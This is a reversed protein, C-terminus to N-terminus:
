RPTFAAVSNTTILFVLACALLLTLYVKYKRQMAMAKTDVVVGRGLLQREQAIQRRVVDTDAFVRDILRKDSLNAAVRSYVEPFQAQLYRMLDRRLTLSKYYLWIWLFCILLFVGLITWRM